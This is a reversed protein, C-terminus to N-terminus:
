PLGRALRDDGHSAVEEFATDMEVFIEWRDVGLRDAVGDVVLAELDPVRAGKWLKDALAVVREELSVDDGGWAAHTLCVRALSPAVGRQLLLEFGAAEHLSGPATLEDPCVAKGIDHLVVGARIFATDLPVSRCAFAALLAEMAEGVLEM